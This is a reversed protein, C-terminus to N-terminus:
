VVCCLYTFSLCDPLSLLCFLVSLVICVISFCQLVSPFNHGAGTEDGTWLPKNNPWTRLFNILPKPNLIKPVELRGCQESAETAQTALRKTNVRSIGTRETIVPQMADVGLETAKQIVFDLANKKVPAFVLVLSSTQPQERIKQIATLTCSKDDIKKIQTLWEGDNGNFILVKADLSLRLVHLLYHAKERALVLSEGKTFPTEVFLRPAPRNM